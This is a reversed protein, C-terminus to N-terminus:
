FFGPQFVQAPTPHLPTVPTPASRDAALTAKSQVTATSCRGNNLWFLAEGTMAELADGQARTLDDPAACFADTFNADPLGEYYEGFGLRNVSLFTVLRLRIDCSSLDFGFQGVPKGFTSAGVIVVDAYPTLSNIVLESASASAGTALFAIRLGPIANAEALMRVTEQQSAKRSNLRTSYLVQAPNGGALLSGLIEATSVLGGGNYRLDIIVDQVNAAKFRGFAARLRSDAPSIFSRLNLYGIPTNGTRPILLDPPVPDLSFTRKTATREVTAGAVTRVRFSRTVGETAPGLADSIGTPTAALTTVAVLTSPSTGIALVEDGRAFGADFAASAPYVQTIFLQAPTGRTQIGIGFGVSTGEAFFAQEGSITSLYSFFRDRNQERATATLADLLDQASPYSATNVNTPLLDLFLYWENTTSLVFDKQRTVGCAASIGGSGGDSGGSSCAVTLGACALASLLRHFSFTM